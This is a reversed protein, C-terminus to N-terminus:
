LRPSTNQTGWSGVLWWSEFSQGGLSTQGSFSGDLSRQAVTSIVVLVLKAMSRGNLLWQHPWQAVASICELISFSEPIAELIRESICCPHEPPPSPSNSAARNNKHETKCGVACSIRFGSLGCCFCNSLDQPQNSQNIINFHLTHTGNFAEMRVSNLAM